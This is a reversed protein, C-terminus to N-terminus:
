TDSSVAYDRAADIPLLKDLTSIAAIRELHASQHDRLAPSIPKASDIETLMPRQFLSYTLLDWSM